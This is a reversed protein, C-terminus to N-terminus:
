TAAGRAVHIFVLNAAIAYGACATGSKDTGPPGGGATQMVMAKGGITQTEKVYLRGHTVLTVMENILTDKLACGHFKANEGNDTVYAKGDTHVFCSDGRDIAGGAIAKITLRPDYMDWRVLDDAAM